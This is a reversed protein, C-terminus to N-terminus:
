NEEGDPMTVVLGDTGGGGKDTVQALSLSLGKGEATRLTRTNKRKGLNKTPRRGRNRSCRGRGGNTQVLPVKSETGEHQKSWDKKKEKKM